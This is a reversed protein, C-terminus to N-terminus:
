NARVARIAGHRSRRHWEIALDPFHLRRAVPSFAPPGGGGWHVDDCRIVKVSSSVDLLNVASGLNGFPGNCRDAKWFAGNSARSLGGVWANGLRAALIAALGVSLCRRSPADRARGVCDLRRAAGGPLLRLTSSPLASLASICAV